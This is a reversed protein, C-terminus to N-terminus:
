RRGAEGSAEAFGLAERLSNELPSYDGDERELRLAELLPATRNCMFRPVGRHNQSASHYLLPHCLYVDGPRAVAEVVRLPHGDEDLTETDMFHAIREAPTRGDPVAGTLESLWPHRANVERIAEGLPKPEPQDALFRAVIRHSGEAILTVGGRSRNDSFFCLVLLGQESATLTHKFHIGDWHWGEPAVTWEREAGVSFNVPWWGWTVPEGRGRWRGAGVLDEVAEALRPTACRDFAGGSFTEKLHVMPTTWTAPDHKLVGEEALRSWVQDQAELADEPAFAETLHVYGQRTFHEIQAATLVRPPKM